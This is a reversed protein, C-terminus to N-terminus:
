EQDIATMGNWNQLLILMYQDTQNELPVAILKEGIQTARVQLVSSNSFALSHGINQDTNPRQDRNRKGPGKHFGLRM